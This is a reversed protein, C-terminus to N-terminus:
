ADTDGTTDARVALSTFGATTSQRMTAMDVVSLRLGATTCAAAFRAAADLSPYHATVLVRVASPAIVAWTVEVAGGEAGTAHDATACVATLGVAAEWAGATDGRSLTHGLASAEMVAAQDAGIAAVGAAAADLAVAVDQATVVLGRPGEAGAATDSRGPAGSLARGDTGGGADPRSANGAVSPTDQAMGQDLGGRTTDTGLMGADTPAAAETAALAAALAAADAAAAQDTPASSVGLGADATSTAGDPALPQGLLAGLDATSPASDTTGPNAALLATDAWAGLDSATSSTAAISVGTSAVGTATGGDTADPRAAPGASATAVAADTGDAAAEPSAQEGPTGADGAAPGPQPSATDTTSGADAAGAGATATAADGTTATDGGGPAAGLARSDLATGTDPRAPQGTVGRGETATAADARGTSTTAARAEGLAGTDVSVGAAGLTRGDSAGGTDGPGGARIGGQTDTGAGPDTGPAAMIFAPGEGTTATDTGGILTVLSRVEIRDLRFTSDNTEFGVRGTSYTSDTATSGIQAWTGSSSARWHLSLSTGDKRICVQAGATLAAPTGTALTASPYTGNTIRELAVTDNSAQGDKVRIAYADNTTTGVDAVMIELYATNGNIPPTITFLYDGDTFDSKDATYGSGWGPTTARYAMGGITGMQSDGSVIPAAWGSPPSTSDPYAFDESWVVPGDGIAM